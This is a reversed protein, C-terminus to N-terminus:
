GSPEESCWRSCLGAWGAPWNRMGLVEGSDVWCGLLRGRAEFGGCKDGSAFIAKTEQPGEPLVTREEWLIDLVIMIGEWNCKREKLAPNPDSKDKHSGLEQPKGSPEPLLSNGQLAPSGPEIGPNPLDGPSPFPLGNWYQQRSFEM